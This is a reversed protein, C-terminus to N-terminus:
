GRNKKDKLYSMIKDRFKPPFAEELSSGGCEKMVKEAVEEDLLLDELQNVGLIKAAETSLVEAFWENKSKGLTRLKNTLPGDKDFIAKQWKPLNINIRWYYKQGYEKDYCLKDFNVYKRQAM